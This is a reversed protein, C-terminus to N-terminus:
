KVNENLRQLSENLTKFQSLVGQIKERGIQTDTVYAGHVLRELVQTKNLQWTKQM